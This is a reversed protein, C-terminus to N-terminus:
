KSSWFMFLITKPFIYIPELVVAPMLIEDCTELLETIEENRKKFASYINTDICLRM